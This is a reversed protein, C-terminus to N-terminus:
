FVDKRKDVLVFAVHVREYRHLDQMLREWSQATFYKRGVAEFARRSAVVGNLM